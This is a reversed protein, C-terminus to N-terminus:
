GKCCEFVLGLDSFCRFPLVDSAITERSVSKTCIPICKLYRLVLESADLDENLSKRGVSQLWIYVDVVQFKLVKGLSHNQTLLATM